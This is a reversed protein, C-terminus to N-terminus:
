CVRDDCRGVSRNIKFKKFKEEALALDKTSYLATGDSKILLYTDLDYKKLNVIVAGQSKKAIKKKRIEKVIEKGRKEHESEYFIHDFAVDMEEYIKDFEGISWGKLKEWVEVIEPDRAELKKLIESVEEKYEPHEEVEKTAEVYIKGFWTGVSGTPTEDKHLKLYAWICKAIHAGLDNYYNAKVVDYGAYRLIRSLSEGLTTGRIHGVHFAKLPNPQSYEVMVKDKKM